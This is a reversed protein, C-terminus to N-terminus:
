FVKDVSDHPEIKKIVDHVRKMVDQFEFEIDGKKLVLNKPEKQMLFCKASRILAKSPVCGNNLCDGGM